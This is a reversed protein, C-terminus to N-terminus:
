TVFHARDFYPRIDQHALWEAYVEWLRAMCRRCQSLDYDSTEFRVDELDIIFLRPAYPYEDDPSDGLDM